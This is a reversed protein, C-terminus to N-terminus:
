LGSWSQSHPETTYCNAVHRLVYTWNGSRFFCALLCVGGFKLQPSPETPMAQLALMIVWFQHVTSSTCYCASTHEARPLWISLAWQGASRDWKTLAPGTLSGIKCFMTPTTRVLLVQPQGRVEMWTFTCVHAQVRHRCVCSCVYVYMCLLYIGSLTKVVLVTVLGHCRKGSPWWERTEKKPWM